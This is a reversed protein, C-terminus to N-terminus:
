VAMWDVGEGSVSVDVRVVRPDHVRVEVREGPALGDSPFRDGTAPDVIYVVGTNTAKAVIVVAGCRIDRNTLAEPTGAMAVTKSGVAYPVAEPM